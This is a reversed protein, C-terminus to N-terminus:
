SLTNHAAPQSPNAPGCPPRSPVRRRPSASGTTRGHVTPMWGSVWSLAGGRGMLRGKSEGVAICVGVWSLVLGNERSSLQFRQQLVLSFTSHMLSGALNAGGQMLLLSPVGPYRTVAALSSLSLRQPAAAAAVAESGDDKKAPQSADTHMLLPVHPPVCARVCLPTLTVCSYLTSDDHAPVGGGCVCM